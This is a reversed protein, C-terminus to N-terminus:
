AGAEQNIGIILAALEQLQEDTLGALEADDPAAKQCDHFFDIYENATLGPEHCDRYKEAFARTIM